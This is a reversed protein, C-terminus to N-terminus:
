RAFVTADTSGIEMKGSFSDSKQLTNLWQKSDSSLSLSSANGHLALLLRQGIDTWFSSQLLRSRFYVHLPLLRVLLSYFIFSQTYVHVGFVSPDTYVTIGWRASSCGYECTHVHCLCTVAVDWCVSGSQYDLQIDKM